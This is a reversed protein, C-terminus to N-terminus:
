WTSSTPRPSSAASPPSTTCSRRTGRCAAAGRGPGHGGQDHVQRDDRRHGVRVQREDLRHGAQRRDAREGPLMIIKADQGGLEISRASTPTCTTSRWRSPTSRRSSSRASRSACRGPARGPSSSASTSARSTPSRTASPSSCSWRRRRRGRRTASTTPGSSTAAHRPDVVVAKVTTSGVDVGVVVANATLRGSPRTGAGIRASISVELTVANQWTTRDFYWSRRPKKSDERRRPQM